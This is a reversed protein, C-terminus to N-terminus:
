SPEWTRRARQAPHACNSWGMTRGHPGYGSCCPVREREEASNRGCGAAQPRFGRIHSKYVRRRKRATSRVGSAARQRGVVVRREPVRLPQRSRSRTAFRLWSPGSHTRRMKRRDYHAAVIDLLLLARDTVWSLWSWTKYLHSFLSNAWGARFVHRERHPVIQRKRSGNAAGITAFEPCLSVQAIPPIIGTSFQAGPNCCDPPLTGLNGTSRSARECFRPRLGRWAM